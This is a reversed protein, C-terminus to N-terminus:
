TKVNTESGRPRLPVEPPSPESSGAGGWLEASKWLAWFDCGRPQSSLMWVASDSTKLRLLTCIFSIVYYFGPFRETAHTALPKPPGLPWVTFAGSINTFLCSM